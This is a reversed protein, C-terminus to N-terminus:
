YRFPPPTLGQARMTHELDKIHMELSHIKNDRERVQERLSNLESRLASVDAQMDALRQRMQEYVERQSEAIAIDAGTKAKEKKANQLWLWAGGAMSCLAVFGAGITAANATLWQVVM